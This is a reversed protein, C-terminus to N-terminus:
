KAGEKVKFPSRRNWAKEADEVSHKYPGECGCGDKVNDCIIWFVGSGNDEPKDNPAGGCFPCPFLDSM